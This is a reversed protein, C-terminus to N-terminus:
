SLHWTCDGGLFAAVIKGRPNEKRTWTVIEWAIKVARKWSPHAFSALYQEVVSETWEELQVPDRDEPVRLMVHRAALTM